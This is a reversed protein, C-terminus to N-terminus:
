LVDARQEIAALQEATPRRARQWRAYGWAGGGVAALVVAFAIIKQPRRLEASSVRSSNL